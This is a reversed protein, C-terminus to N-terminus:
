TNLCFHILNNPNNALLNNMELNSSFINMTEINFFSTIGFLLEFFYATRNIKLSSPVPKLKLNNRNTNYEAINLVFNRNGKISRINSNDALENFKIEIRLEKIVIKIFDNSNKFANSNNSIKFENIREISVGETETKTTDKILEIRIKYVEIKRTKRDRNKNKTKRTKRAWWNREM